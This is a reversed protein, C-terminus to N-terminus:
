FRHGGMPSSVEGDCVLDIWPKSQGERKLFGTNNFGHQLSRLSAAQDHPGIWLM